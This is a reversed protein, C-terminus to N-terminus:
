QENAFMSTSDSQPTKNPRGSATYTAKVPGDQAPVVKSQPVMTNSSSGSPVVVSKSGPVVSVSPEPVIPHKPFESYKIVNSHHM